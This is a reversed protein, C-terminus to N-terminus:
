GRPGRGGGYPSVTEETAQRSYLEMHYGGDPAGLPRSPIDHGAGGGPSQGVPMATITPVVATPAMAAVMAM